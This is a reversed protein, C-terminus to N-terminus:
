PLSQEQGCSWSVGAWVRIRVRVLRRTAPTPGAALCTAVLPFPRGTVCSSSSTHSSTGRCAM